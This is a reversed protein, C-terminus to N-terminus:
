HEQLAKYTDYAEDEENTPLSGELEELARKLRWFEHLADGLDEEHFRRKLSVELAIVLQRCEEPDPNLRAIFEEILLVVQPRM